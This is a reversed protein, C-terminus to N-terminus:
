KNVRKPSTIPKRTTKRLTEGSKKGRWHFIDEKDLPRLYDFWVYTPLRLKGPPIQDMPYLIGESRPSMVIQEMKRNRLYLNLLSTESVNMGIMTGDKEDEPYFV